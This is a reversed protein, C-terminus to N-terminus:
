LFIPRFMTFFIFFVVPIGTDTPIASVLVKDLIAPFIAFFDKSLQKRISFLQIALFIKDHVGILSTHPKPLWYELNIILLPM